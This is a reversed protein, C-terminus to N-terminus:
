EPWLKEDLWSEMLKSYDRLNVVERAEGGIINAPATILFEGTGQTALWAVEAQSLGYNYIRVDDITGEFQSENADPENGIALGPDDPCRALGYPNNIDKAEGLQGNIYCAITSGDYTGAVHIWDDPWVVDNVEYREHEDGAHNADRFQFVFEQDGDVEMEYSEHDNKGKVVVRASSMRERIYIWATVSVQNTDPKLDNSDPVKVRGGSFEVANPGSPGVRGTAWAYGGQDTTELTGHNDNASSDEAFTDAGEDLKWHGILNTDSPQQVEIGADDAFNVDRALWQQGMIRVDATDVICNGSFDAEPGYEPICIPLSLRIDDFYALGAGGAVPNRKDGFGIYLNAVGKFNVDNVVEAYNSDKFYSYPLDWSQWEEVLFDNMDEGESDGYRIEAYTGDTDDVGIYMQEADTTANESDGYFFLRLLKLGAVTWDQQRGNVELPLWAEAYNLDAWADDTDYIYSMAQDGRHVPYTPKTALDIWGGTVEGWDQRRQDIWAYWIRDPDGITYQEFDDLALFDAVIFRWVSGKWVCPDNVEDIRWYYTTKLDLLGPDYECADQVSCPETMDNVDDFSAGFFVKHGNTDQVYNGPRWSVNADRAVEEAFDGPTPAWAKGVDGGRYLEEIDQDTLARNFLKFDDMKGMYTYNESSTSGIKFAVDQISGLTNLTGSREERMIGDFYIRMKGATEDKVFAWHHWGQLTEARRGDLDWMLVDCPDDGAIWYAQGAPSIGDTVVVAGVEYSGSGSQFVWNDDGDKNYADKLWVAVTIANNINNLVTFKVCDIVTAADDDDEVDSFNRSGGWPPDHPHADNPDWGLENGDVRGHNGYGSSDEADYGSTEDLKLWM